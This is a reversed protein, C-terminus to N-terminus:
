KEKEDENEETREQGAEPLDDFLEDEDLLDLVASNIKYQLPQETEPMKQKPPCAM